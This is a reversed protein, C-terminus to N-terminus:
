NVVSAGLSKFHEVQSAPVDSVQGNPARMKVTAAGAGLTDNPNFGNKQLISKAEPSLASFSDNEGMAQHYQYNLANLKSGMVPLLTKVYGALQQPSSAARVNKEAEAIGSVTAGSKALVSAVEGALAGKLTDFNTVADSGFTTRAWNYFENGPVFKGNGLKEGLKTIQDIHGIATNIANIQQGQTGTTFAKRTPARNTFLGADYEPNVQNVWQTLQERMGGRMSAVKTPDEEYNAIKEVTKRWQAPITKLFDDGTVNFDGQATAGSPKLKSEATKLQIQAAIGEPSNPDINRQALPAHYGGQSTQINAAIGEPSLPDIRKSEQNKLMEEAQRAKHDAITEALTRQQNEVGANRTDIENQINGRQAEATKRSQQHGLWEQYVSPDLQALAPMAEPKLDGAEMDWNNKDQFFARLAAKNQQGLAAQDMQAQQQGMQLKQAQIGQAAQKIGLLQAVDDLPNLPKPVVLQAM